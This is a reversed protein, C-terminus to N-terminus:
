SESRDSMTNIGILLDFRPIEPDDHGGLQGSKRLAIYDELTFGFHDTVRQEIERRFQGKTMMVITEEPVKKMTIRQPADDVAYWEVRSYDPSGAVRFLKRDFSLGPHSRSLYRRTEEVEGRENPKDPLDDYRFGEELGYEKLLALGLAQLPAKDVVIGGEIEGFEETGSIKFLLVPPVSSPHVRRRSSSLVTDLQKRILYGAGDTTVQTEPQQELSTPPSYEVLTELNIAM